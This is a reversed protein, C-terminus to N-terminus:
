SSGTSVALQCGLWGHGSDVCESGTLNYAYISQFYNVQLKMDASM